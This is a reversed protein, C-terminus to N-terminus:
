SLKIFWCGVGSICWLTWLIMYRNEVKHVGRLTNLINNNQIAKFHRLHTSDFLHLKYTQIAHKLTYLMPLIITNTHFLLLSLSLILAFTSNTKTEICVTCMRREVYQAFLPFYCIFVCCLMLMWCVSGSLIQKNHATTMAVTDFILPQM